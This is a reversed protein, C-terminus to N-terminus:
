SLNLPLSSCSCSSSHRLGQTEGPSSSAPTECCEWLSKSTVHGTQSQISDGKSVWFTSPERTFLFDLCMLVECPGTPYHRGNLNAFPRYLLNQIYTPPGAQPM